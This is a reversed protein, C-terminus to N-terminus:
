LVDEQAIPHSHPPAEQAACVNSLCLATALLAAAIKNRITM